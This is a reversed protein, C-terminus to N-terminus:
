QNPIPWRTKQTDIRQTDRNPIYLKWEFDPYTQATSLTTFIKKTCITASAVKKKYIIYSPV